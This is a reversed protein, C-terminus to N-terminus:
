GPASRGAPLGKRYPVGGPILSLFPLSAYSLSVGLSVWLVFLAVCYWAAPRPLFSAAIEYLAWGMAANILLVIPLAALGAALIRLLGPRPHSAQWAPSAHPFRLAQARVRELLLASPELVRYSDLAERISPFDRGLAALSECGEPHPGASPDESDVPAAKVDPIRPHSL